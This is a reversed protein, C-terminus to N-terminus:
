SPRRYRDMIEEFDAPTRNHDGSRDMIEVADSDESGDGPRITKCRPCKEHFHLNLAHCKPCVWDKEPIDGRDVLNAEGPEPSDTGSTEMGKKAYSHSQANTKRAEIRRLEAMAQQQTPFRGLHKNGDPSFLVWVGAVERIFPRVGDKIQRHRAETNTDTSAYSNLYGGHVGSLSDMKAVLKQAEERHQNSTNWLQIVYEHLDPNKELIRVRYAIQQRAKDHMVLLDRWTSMLTSFMEPHMRRPPEDGRTLKKMFQENFKQEFRKFRAKVVPSVSRGPLRNAPRSATKSKRTPSPCWGSFCGGRENTSLAAYPKLAKQLRLSIFSKETDLSDRIAGANAPVGVWSWETMSYRKFVWGLPSMSSHHPYAKEFQDKKYAEIPIFAMSTGNIFGRKIKGYLFMADADGKDFYSRARIRYQEPWVCLEGKPSVSKAIPVMHEQHGFFVVPNLRYEQLECGLSICTDGERDDDSTSITAEVSADADNSLKPQTSNLHALALKGAKAVYAFKGIAEPLNLRGKRICDDLSKYRAAIDHISPHAM